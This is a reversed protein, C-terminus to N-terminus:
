RPPRAQTAAQMLGSPLSHLQMKSAISSAAISSAASADVAVPTAAGPAAHATLQCVDRYLLSILRM